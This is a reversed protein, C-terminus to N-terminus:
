CKRSIHAVLLYSRAARHGFVAGRHKWGANLCHDCTPHHVNHQDLCARVLVFVPQSMGAWLARLLVLDPGVSCM